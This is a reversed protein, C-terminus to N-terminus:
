RKNSSLNRPGDIDWDGTLLKKLKQCLITAHNAIPEAM